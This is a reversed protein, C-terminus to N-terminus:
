KAELIAIRAHLEQIANVLVAILSQDTIKLKDPDENDIIVPADGELALVDQALFGYRLPGNGETDERNAKYRYTTPKLNNVFDLGLPVPGFDTKDRMDSVATWAVQVYANTTNTSGIMVRDNQTTPDFVPAYTGTSSYGGVMVNGAGTTNNRLAEVGIGTNYSGTTNGFLAQYGSAVNYGGTTNASLTFGGVATNTVGTTTAVLAQYGVGVNYAGTTNTVLAAYGVAVNYAGTTNATLASVGLATNTAVASAGLGVTLTQLTTAGPISVKGSSDISLRSSGATFDAIDFSNTTSGGARIGWSRVGTELLSVTASGGGGAVTFKYGPSTTGVGLFNNTDDWFLNANDQTYVGSTGAFVVSGATFATSTATGGNAVPLTGTVGTTLPLGTASTLTVSSPTGLAPTVLTPSTSLVMNGTGTVASSLTVGGYTLAGTVTLTTHSAPGGWTVADGATTADGVGTLKYTGLKINATPTTQGDKTLATTLGTALDATLANFATSTITTGNVVPQGASNINFTGSGNYSM